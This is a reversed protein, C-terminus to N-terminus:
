LKAEHGELSSPLTASFEKKHLLGRRRSQTYRWIENYIMIEDNERRNAAFELQSALNNSINCGNDGSGTPKTNLNENDSGEPLSVVVVPPPEALIKAKWKRLKIVARDIVAMKSTDLDSIKAVQIKPEINCPASGKEVHRLDPRRASLVKVESLKSPEMNKTDIFTFPLSNKNETGNPRTMAHNTGSDTGIHHSYQQIGVLPNESVPVSNTAGTISPQMSGKGPHPHMNETGSPQSQQRTVGLQGAYLEAESCESKAALARRNRLRKYGICVFLSVFMGIVLCLGVAIDTREWIAQFRSGSSQCCKSPSNYVSVTPIKSANLYSPTEYADTVANTSASTSAQTAKLTPRTSSTRVPTSSAAKSAVPMPSAAVFGFGPTNDETIGVEKGVMDAAHGSSSLTFSNEGDSPEWVSFFPFGLQLAAVDIGEREIKNGSSGGQALFYIDAPELQVPNPLVETIPPAPITFGDQELLVNALVEEINKGQADLRFIAVEIAGGVIGKLATVAIRHKLSFRCGKWDSNTVYTNGSSAFDSVLLDYQTASVGVLKSSCSLTCLTVLLITGISIRPMM